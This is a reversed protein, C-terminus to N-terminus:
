GCRARPRRCRSDSRRVLAVGTRQPRQPPRLRSTSEVPARSSCSVDVRVRARAAPLSNTGRPAFFRPRSWGSPWLELEERSRLGPQTMKRRMVMEGCVREIRHPGPRDQWGQVQEAREDGSRRLGPGSRYECRRERALMERTSVHAWRAIKRSRGPSRAPQSEPAATNGRPRGRTGSECDSRTAPFRM